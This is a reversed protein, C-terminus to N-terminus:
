SLIGSEKVQSKMLFKSDISDLCAQNEVVKVCGDCVYRWNGQDEKKYCRPCASIECRICCEEASDCIELYYPDSIKCRRCFRPMLNLLVWM